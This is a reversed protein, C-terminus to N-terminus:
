ESKHSCITARKSMSYHSTTTTDTRNFEIAIQCWSIETTKYERRM